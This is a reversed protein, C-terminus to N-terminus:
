AVGSWRRHGSEHVTYTVFGAPFSSQFQHLGVVDIKEIERVFWLCLENVYVPKNM